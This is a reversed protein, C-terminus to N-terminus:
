TRTVLCVSVPASRNRQAVNSTRIEWNITNRSNDVSELGFNHVEVRRTFINRNKINVTGGKMVFASEKLYSPM